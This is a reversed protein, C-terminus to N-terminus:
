AVSREASPPARAERDRVPQVSGRILNDHHAAPAHEAPRGRARAGSAEGRQAGRVLSHRPRARAARSSRTAAGPPRKPFPRPRRPPAPLAHRRTADGQATAPPSGAAPARRVPRRTRRPRKHISAARGSSSSPGVSSAAALSAVGRMAAASHTPRVVLGPATACTPAPGHASRTHAASFFTSLPEVRLADLLHTRAYISRTFGFGFRITRGIIPRRYRIGTM